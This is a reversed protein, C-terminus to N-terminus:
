DLPADLGADRGRQESDALGTLGSHLTRLLTIM